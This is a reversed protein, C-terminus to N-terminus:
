HVHTLALSHMQNSTSLIMGRAQRKNRRIHAPDIYLLDAINKRLSFKERGIPTNTLDNRFFIYILTYEQAIYDNNDYKALANWTHLSFKLKSWIKSLIKSLVSNANQKIHM